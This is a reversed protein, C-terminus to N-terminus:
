GLLTLVFTTAILSSFCMTMQLKQIFHINQDKGSVWINRKPVEYLAVNKPIDENTKSFDNNKKFFFKTKKHEIEKRFVENYDLGLFCIKKSMRQASSM